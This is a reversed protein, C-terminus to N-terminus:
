RHPGAPIHCADHQCVQVADPELKLKPDIAKALDQLRTAPLYDSRDTM